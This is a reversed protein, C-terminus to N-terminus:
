NKIASGLYFRNIAISFLTYVVVSPFIFLWFFGFFPSFLILGLLSVSTVLIVKTWSQSHIKTIKILMNTPIVMSMGGVFWYLILTMTSVIENEWTWSSFQHYLSAGSVILVGIQLLLAIRFIM